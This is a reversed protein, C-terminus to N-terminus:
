THDSRINLLSVLKETYMKDKGPVDVERLAKFVDLNIYQETTTCLSKIVWAYNWGDRDNNGHDYDRGMYAPLNSYIVRKFQYTLIAIYEDFSDQIVAFMNTHWGGVYGRVKYLEFYSNIRNVIYHVGPGFSVGRIDCIKIHLILHELLNAYVLREATQASWPVSSLTAFASSSLNNYKDEDIHHIELGEKTRSNKKQVSKCSPTCFYDYPVPGYKVKLHDVLDDYSLNLMDEYLM